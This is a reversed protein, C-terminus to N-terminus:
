MRNVLHKQNRASEPPPFFFIFVLFSLLWEYFLAVAKSNNVNLFPSTQPPKFPFNVLSLPHPQATRTSVSM